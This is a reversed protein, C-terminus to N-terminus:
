ADPGTPDLAVPLGAASWGTFGAPLNAVARHGASQLLSMAIASRTGAQCHVVLPRDPPFDALHDPLDGLPLHRAGALHGTEWEVQGRVDLVTVTGHGLRAALEAVTLQPASELPGEQSSWVELVESGFAGGIRELGIMVLDRAAQEVVSSGREDAILFFERDFPILSGAWTTFSRNFPINITGPVHSAAFSAANRLDVVPAGTALLSKLRQEPLRSPARVGGLLTPGDRNIRKMERFYRPPEPQGLLVQRVFEAEDQIGFAWNYRLEYGMTTQPMSSMGKGCASGAGHGPWIQLHEPLARFRQLSRFLVRAAGDAANAVGVARELLDPRGVDGAFLFDGTIVGIPGSAGATDTLLFSLHEPTHGPTHLVELRVRGVDLVSGARLLVAKADAAYGYRWGPGGEDSLYLTAGTRAALERAGSVFDAHIHTETVGTLRLGAEDAAAIYQEIRRNPDIVLAEGSQGCGVLFSAQALQDDYFRTLIM